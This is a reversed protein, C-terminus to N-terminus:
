LENFIWPTFSSLEANPFVADPANENPEDFICSYPIRLDPSESAMTGEVDIDFLQVCTPAQAAVQITQPDDSAVIAWYEIHIAFPDTMLQVIMVFRRSGSPNILWWKADLRLFELAESSGVGM